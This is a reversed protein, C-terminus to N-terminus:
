DSLFKEGVSEPWELRALVKIPKVAKGLRRDLELIRELHRDSGPAKTGKGAGM